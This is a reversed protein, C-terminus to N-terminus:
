GQTVTVLAPRLVRDNILYGKQLVQAVHSPPLPPTVSGGPVMSIAQHRNPDFKQGRPDIELLHNKEFASALQRLTAEVGQKLNDVTPVEAALAMELSDKVPLLSEAFSEIGYKHAKAVDEQARRRLNDAEAVARLYLEYHEAAKAQAQALQEVLDPGGGPADGASAEGAGGPARAAGAAGAASAAGAADAAATSADDIRNPDESREPHEPHM